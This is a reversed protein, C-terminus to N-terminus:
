ILKLDTCDASLQAGIKLVFVNRVVKNLELRQAYSFQLLEVLVIALYRNREHVVDLDVAGSRKDIRHYM